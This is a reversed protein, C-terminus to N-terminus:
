IKWGRFAFPVDMNGSIKFSRNGSWRVGANGSAQVGGAREVEAKLDVNGNTKFILTVESAYYAELVIRRGNLMKWAARNARRLGNVLPVLSFMSAHGTGNRFTRARVETISFDVSKARALGGEIRAGMQDLRSKGNLSLSREVSGYVINAANIETRWFKAPKSTLIEKLHGQYAHGRRKGLVAGPVIDDTAVALLTLDYRRLFQPLKLGAM